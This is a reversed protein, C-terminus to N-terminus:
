RLAGVDLARGLSDGLGDEVLARRTLAMQRSRVRPYWWRRWALLAGAALMAALLQAAGDGGDAGGHAGSEVVPVRGGLQALEDGDM